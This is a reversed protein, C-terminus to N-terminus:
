AADDVWKRIGVAEGGHEWNSLERADSIIWAILSYETKESLNKQVRILQSKKDPFKEKYESQFGKSVQTM